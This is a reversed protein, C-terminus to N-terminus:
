QQSLLLKGVLLVVELPSCTDQLPDGRTSIELMILILMGQLKMEIGVLSYVFVVLDVCTDFSGSFRKGINRALNKWTGISQM